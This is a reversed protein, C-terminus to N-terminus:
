PPSLEPITPVLATIGITQLFLVRFSKMLSSANSSDQDVQMYPCGTAHLLMTQVLRQDQFFALHYVLGIDLPCLVPTDPVPPLAFAAQYLRQVAAGNRITVELSPVTWGPLVTRSVQLRTPHAVGPQASGSLVLLLLGLLLACFVPRWNM